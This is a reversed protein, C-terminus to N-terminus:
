IPLTCLTPLTYLPLMYISPLDEQHLRSQDLQAKIANAETRCLSQCVWTSQLIVEANSPMNILHLLFASSSLVKLLCKPGDDERTAINRISVKTRYDSSHQLKQLCATGISLQNTSKLSHKKM